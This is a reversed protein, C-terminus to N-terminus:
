TRELLENLSHIVLDVYDMDKTYPSMDEVMVTFCGAGHSSRLGNPSDEFVIVDKPDKNVIKCADLYVYPFPKGREADKASIVDSVIDILGVEKLIRIAKEKKNATVIYVKKNSNKLYTLLEIAGEKLEIPHEDLYRYMLEKRKERVIKYNLNKNMSDFFEQGLIPDLSRMNLAEEDSMKHGYFLCAEKWFRFYLPETNILVGDLDFFFTDFRDFINEM